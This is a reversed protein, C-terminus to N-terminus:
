LMTVVIIQSIAIVSELRGLPCEAHLQESCSARFDAKRVRVEVSPAHLPSSPYPWQKCLMYNMATFGLLQRKYNMFLLGSCLCQVGLPTRDGTLSYLPRFLQQYQKAPVKISSRCLLIGWFRIRGKIIKEIRDDSGEVCTISKDQKLLAYM